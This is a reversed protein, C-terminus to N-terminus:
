IFARDSVSVGRGYRLIRYTLLRPVASSNEAQTECPLFSPLSARSVKRSKKKMTGLQLVSMKKSVTLHFSSKAMLYQTLQMGLPEMM